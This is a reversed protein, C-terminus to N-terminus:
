EVDVCDFFGLLLPLELIRDECAIFLVGILQQCFAKLEIPLRSNEDLEDFIFVLSIRYLLIQLRVITCYPLRVFV